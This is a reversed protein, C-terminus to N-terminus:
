PTQGSPHRRRLHQPMPPPPRELPPPLEPPPDGRQEARRAERELRAREREEATRPMDDGRSM